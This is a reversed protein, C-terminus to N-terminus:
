LLHHELFADVVAHAEDSRGSRVLAPLPGDLLDRWPVSETSRGREHVRRRAEELLAALDGLGPGLADVARDRLWGALAPSAGATTVSVTVAGDRALAPLVVSCRAADDAVNVWVGAGEADRHVEGDVAPDGTAAIVRRLLM